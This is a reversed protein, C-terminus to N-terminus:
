GARSGFHRAQWAALEVVVVKVCGQLDKAKANRARAADRRAEADLRWMIGRMREQSIRQGDPAVLYRGRQKWGLWNARLETHGNVIRDYHALAFPNQKRDDQWCPPRDMLM